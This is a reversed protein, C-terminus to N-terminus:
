EPRANTSRFLAEGPLWAGALVPSFSPSLAWKGSSGQIGQCPVQLGAARGWPVVGLTMWAGALAEAHRRPGFDPGCPARSGRGGPVREPELVFILEREPLGTEWGQTQDQLALRPSPPRPNNRLRDTRREEGRAEEYDPQLKSLFVSSFRESEVGVCKFYWAWLDNSHSFKALLM